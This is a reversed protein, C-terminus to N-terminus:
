NSVDVLRNFSNVKHAFHTYQFKDYAPAEVVKYVKLLNNYNYYNNNSYNTNNCGEIKRTNNETLLLMVVSRLINIIMSLSSNPM